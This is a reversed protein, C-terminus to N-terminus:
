GHSILNHECVCFFFWISILDSFYKQAFFCLCACVFKVFCLSVFFIFFLFYFYINNLNGILATWSNDVRLDIPQSHEDYTGVNQLVQNMIEACRNSDTNTLVSLDKNSENDNMLIEENKSSELSEDISKSTCYDQGM